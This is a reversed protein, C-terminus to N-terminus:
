VPFTVRAPVFKWDPAVQLKPAPIVTLEQVNLEAVCSAAFLVTGEVAVTPVRETTTVLGSPRFPTNWFPKETVWNTPGGGVKVEAVGLEPPWPCVNFTTNAPVFKKFPAVQMKPEPIVTFEQVNLELVCSVALMVIAAPAVVPDRVIM